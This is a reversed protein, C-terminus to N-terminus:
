NGVGLSARIARIQENISSADNAGLKLFADETMQISGLFRRMFAPPILSVGMSWKTLLDFHIGTIKAM